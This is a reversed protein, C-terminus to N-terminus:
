FYEPLSLFYKRNKPVKEAELITATRINMKTFDDYSIEPLTAM